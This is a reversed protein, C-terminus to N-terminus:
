IDFNELELPLQNDKHTKIKGNEFIQICSFEKNLASIVINSCERIKDAMSPRSDKLAHFFPVLNEYQSINNYYICKSFFDLLIMQDNTPHNEFEAFITIKNLNLFIQNQTYGIGVPQSKKEFVVVKYTNNLLEKKYFDDIDFKKFKM